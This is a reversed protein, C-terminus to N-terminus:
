KNFGHPPPNASSWYSPQRQLFAEHQSAKMDLIALWCRANSWSGYVKLLYCSLHDVVSRKRDCSFSFIVKIVNFDLSYMYSQFVGQTTNLKNEWYYDACM